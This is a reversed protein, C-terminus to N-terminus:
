TVFKIPRACFLVFSSDVAVQSCTILAAELLSKVFGVIIRYYSTSLDVLAHTSGCADSNSDSTM